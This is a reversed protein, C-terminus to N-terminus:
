NRTWSSTSDRKERKAFTERAAMERGGHMKMRTAGSMAGQSSVIAREADLCKGPLGALGRLIQVSVM